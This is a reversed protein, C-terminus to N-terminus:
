IPSSGVAEVNAVDREASQAVSAQRRQYTRDAHCNACVLDCKEIEAYVKTRQNQNALTAIDGIKEMGPRHDFQMIWPSYQQKCDSCPTKAKLESIEQKLRRARERAADIYKQRNAAYHQQKYAKHYEANSPM